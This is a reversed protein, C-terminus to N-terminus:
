EQEEEEAPTSMIELMEDVTMTTNLVYEGPIIKNNYGYIYEQLIFAGNSETILGSSRLREALQVPTMDADIKVTVDVGDKEDVAGTSFAEYGISYLKRGAVIILVAFVVILLIRVLYKAGSVALNYSRSHKNEFRSM